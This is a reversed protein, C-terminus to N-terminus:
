SLVKRDLLSSVELVARRGDQACVDAGVMAICEPRELFFRGGVMVLMGPSLAVKRVAQIVSTLKEVSTDNSVSIGVVDYRDKKALSLFEEDSAVAGGNVHWGARRFFEQLVYVGFTHQDGPASVLLASRGNWDHAAQFEFAAGLQNLLQHLRTLAITVDTFDCIDQEWFEGLLRAAPSFLGLLLEDFRVGRECIEEVFAFDKDANQSMLIRAFENIESAKIGYSKKEIAEDASHSWSIIPIVQQEVTEVLLKKRKDQPASEISRLFPEITSFDCGDQGPGGTNRTFDTFTRMSAM